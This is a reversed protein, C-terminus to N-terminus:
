QSHHRLCQKPKEHNKSKKILNKTVKSKQMLNNCECNEKSKMSKKWMNMCNKKFHKKFSMQGVVLKWYILFGIEIVILFLSSNTQNLVLAFPPNVAQKGDSGNLDVCHTIKGPATM